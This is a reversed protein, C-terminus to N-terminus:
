REGRGEGRRRAPIPDIGGDTDTIVGPTKPAHTTAM